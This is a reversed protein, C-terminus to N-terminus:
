RWVAVLFWIAAVVDVCIFLGFLLFFLVASADDPNSSGESRVAVWSLISLQAILMLAFILVKIGM